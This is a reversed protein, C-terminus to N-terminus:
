NKKKAKESEAADQQAKMRAADQEKRAKMLSKSTDFRTALFRYTRGLLNSTKQGQKHDLEKWAVILPNWKMQLYRLQDRRERIFQIQRDLSKMASIIEGTQSDTDMFISTYEQVGKRMLNRVRGITDQMRMDGHYFEGVRNIVVAIVAVKQFAERLAEIFCLERSLMGLRTLVAAHDDAAAGLQTAAKSFATRLQAKNEKSSLFAKLQDVNKVEAEKGSIWSIM